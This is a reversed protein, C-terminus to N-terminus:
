SRLLRARTPLCSSKQPLLHFSPGNMRRSRKRDVALATAQSESNRDQQGELPPPDGQVVITTSQIPLQAESESQCVRTPIIRRNIIVDSPFTVYPPANSGPIGATLATNRSLLHPDDYEEQFLKDSRPYHPLISM